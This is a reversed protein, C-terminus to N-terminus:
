RSVKREACLSTTTPFHFIGNTKKDQQYLHRGLGGRASNVNNEAGITKGKLNTDKKKADTKM